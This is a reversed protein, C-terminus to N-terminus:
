YYHILRKIKLNMRNFGVPFPSYKDSAPIDLHSVFIHIIQKNNIIHNWQKMTMVYNKPYRLDLQNPVTADHDAIILFYKHNNPIFPYIKNFFFKFGLCAVFIIKPM